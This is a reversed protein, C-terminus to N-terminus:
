LRLALVPLCLPIKSCSLNKVARHMDAFVVLLDRNHVKLNCIYKALLHTASISDALLLSSSNKTIPSTANNFCHFGSLIPTIMYIFCQM